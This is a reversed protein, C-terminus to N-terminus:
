SEAIRLGETRIMVVDFEIVRLTKRDITVPFMGTTEFGESEYAAVQEPLRPMGDYIPVNSVESQMGLVQQIRAGAGRFVQLDFGQTDLKLYVRPSELGATADDFVDELRRIPVQEERVGQLRPSWAKGFDSVPLLSSTSGRGGVVTMEAEGEGEGLACEVVRWDPDGAAAKRLREAIHPLPEFSVIRGQYGVERLLQGYQGVNGGVDLVCNIELERLMWAIHEKALYSGLHRQFARMRARTVPRDVLLHTKMGDPGVRLM